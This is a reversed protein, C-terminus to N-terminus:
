AAVPRKFFAFGPEKREALPNLTATFRVQVGKEVNLGSPATGWCKWGEASKVLMKRVDGYPGSDVRTSLVEGEVTVRGEPAPPAPPEAARAAAKAAVDAAIKLVLQAQKDSIPRTEYQRKIDRVIYHDTEFAATLGPYAAELRAYEKANHAATKAAKARRRIEDKAATWDTGSVMEYKAACENGIHVLERGCTGDQQWIEGYLFRAGCVGCNGFDGYVIEAKWDAAEDSATWEQVRGQTTVLSKRGERTLSYAAFFTYLAPVFAGRRHVDNRKTETATNM